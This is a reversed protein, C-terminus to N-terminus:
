TDATEAAAARAQRAIRRLIRASKRTVRQAFWRARPSHAELSLYALLCRLRDVRSAGVQQASADLQSLDKILWRTRRWRPRHVRALDILAFQPPRAAEREIEAFIHCLYLDRHCAGTQHFASVFRGLRRALDHRALGRTVPAEARVLRTWVRDLGDGGVREFLVVGRREWWGWMEEAVGVARVAPVYQRALEGAQRYEWWARSHWATQRWVRDWQERGPTRLYRKVYVVEDDGLSWRWRERGGLGPKCLAEVRGSLRLDAPSHDLLDCVDGLGAEALRASWGPATLALRSM